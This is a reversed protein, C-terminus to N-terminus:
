DDLFRYRPARSPADDTPIECPMADYAMRADTAYLDLFHAHAHLAGGLTATPESALTNERADFVVTNFRMRADYNSSVTIGNPLRSVLFVTPPAPIDM